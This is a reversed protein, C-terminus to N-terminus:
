KREISGVALSINKRKNSSDARKLLAELRQVIVEWRYPEIRERARASMQARNANDFFKKIAITLEQVDLPNEILFGSRGEDVVLDAQGLRTTVIPLGAAHAEMISLNWAEYQTPLVYLDSAWLYPRADPTNPKIITSETTGTERAILEVKEREVKSVVLLKVPYQQRLSAVAEMAQRVGKRELENVLMCLLFESNSVGLAARTKQREHPDPKMHELDAGNPLIDIAAEPLGYVEILEQKIPESVAIVSRYYGARYQLKELAIVAYHLPNFLKLWWRISSPSLKALSTVFWQLHVSNAVVVTDHCLGSVGMSVVADYARRDLKLRVLFAFLLTYLWGPKTIVPIKHFHLGDDLQTIAAKGYWVHVEHGLRMLHRAYFQSVREVGGRATYDRAILAIKM